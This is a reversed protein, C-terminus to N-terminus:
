GIEGGKALYRNFLYILEYRSKISLKNYLSYLHNKVTHYSIFLEDKIESNSKGLLILRMIEKERKSIKYKISFVDLIGMSEAQNAINRAYKLFFVLLWFLPSLNFYLYGSHILFPNQFAFILALVVYHSLNIIAFSYILRKWGPIQKKARAMLIILLLVELSFFLFQLYYYIVTTLSGLSIHDYFITKMCFSFIILIFGAIFGYSFLSKFRIELFATMIRAMVFVIGNLLFYVGLYGLDLYLIYQKSNTFSPLNVELYEFMLLIFLAGNFLILHWAMPSIFPFPFSRSVQFFYVIVCAGVILNLVIGLLYLHGM